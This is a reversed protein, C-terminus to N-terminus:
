DFWEIYYNFLKIDFGMPYVTPLVLSIDRTDAPSTVLFAPSVM